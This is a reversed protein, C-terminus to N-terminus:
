ASRSKRAKKAPKTAKIESARTQRAKFREVTGRTDVLKETGTFFPHCNSCIEVRMEPQTSGAVLVNGCACAIKANPYYQPHIEKKM